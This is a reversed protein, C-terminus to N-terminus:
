PLFSYTRIYMEELREQLAAKELVSITYRQTTRQLRRELDEKEEDIEALTTGLTVSKRKYQQVECKLAEVQQQLELSTQSESKASPGVAPVAGVPQEAQPPWQSVCM